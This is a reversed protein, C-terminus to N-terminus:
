KALAPNPQVMIQPATNPVLGNPAAPVPALGSPNPMIPLGPQPTAPTLPTVPPVPAVPTNPVTSEDKSATLRLRKIVATGKVSFQKGPIVKIDTFDFQIDDSKHGWSALSNIKKVLMESLQPSIEQGNTMLHTDTVDVWGDKIGLQADVEFSLPVGVGGMGLDATVAIVIKNGKNLVVHAEKMTIGLNSVSAGFLNALAGLRKSVTVSLNALTQPDALFKNLSDQSVSVTVDARAPTSFQLVKDQLLARPEFHLNGSTTLVMEDFVFQQFHGGLIDINLSNLSGQRLDMDGAQVIARDLSTDHFQANQLDFTLKSFRASNLDIMSTPTSLIPQTGAQPASSPPTIGSPATGPITGPQAPTQSGNVTPAGESQVAEQDNKKHHGFALVTPAASIATATQLALLSILAPLTLKLRAFTSSAM